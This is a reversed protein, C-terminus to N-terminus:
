LLGAARLDRTLRVEELLERGPIVIMNGHEDARVLNGPTGAEIDEEEDLPIGFVAQIRQRVSRDREVDEATVARPTSTRISMEWRKVRCFGAISSLLLVWGITMFIFSLWEQTAGGIEDFTADPMVSPMPAEPISSPVPGPESTTAPPPFMLPTNQRDDPIRSYFGLQILTLGLGARSGYKAAHSTHMLHTLLFGVFQFFWSIVMNLLFVLATGVPLDDIIMDAGPDAPAHITTEWYPPVADQRAAEYSPPAEKQIEEPAVYVSGDSTSVTSPLSPKAMVNAFVGDNDTGGGVAHRPEEDSPIRMYHSPLLAGMARRFLNPRPFSMTAIPSTPIIGNSNGYSNPLAVSSPRPPSGPPPVLWDDQRDFDYSGPSPPTSTPTTQRHTLPTQEHDSENDSEFADDLERDAHQSPPNTPVPAYNSM